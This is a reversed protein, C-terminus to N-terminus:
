LVAIKEEYVVENKQHVILQAEVSKLGLETDSGLTYAMLSFKTPEDQAVYSWDYGLGDQVILANDQIVLADSTEVPVTKKNNDRSRYRADGNRNGQNRPARCERVLHGRRHCNFCEVKTKDFGSATSVSNANNVENSSSTDNASVFAVNHSNSSSGSSGKIDAEFMKPNNYLKMDLDYETKLVKEDKTTQVPEDVMEHNSQWLCLRLTTLYAGDEAGFPINVRRPM